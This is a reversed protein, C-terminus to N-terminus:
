KKFSKKNRKIDVHKDLKAVCKKNTGSSSFLLM